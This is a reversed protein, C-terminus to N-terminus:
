HSQREIRRKGGVRCSGGGSCRSEFDLQIVNEKENSALVEAVIRGLAELEYPKAIMACFGHERYSCMAPDTHYGSSVIAKVEPDIAHLRRVAEKGGMGGPITLDSIVVDFRRGEHLANEYAQIASLGDHAEFVEYGLPALACNVLTCISEEDDLILVRARFPAATPAPLLLDAVVPTKDTAPLFVYFTTGQGPRSMVDIVGNHGKIISYATALGLGSGKPKTSFYPDFIRKINEEAIGIGQDQFVIKIDQGAPLGLRQHDTTLTFNACGVRLLGGAPMAQDANITLNSVVQSIQGADVEAALLDDPIDFDAKVSSGRLSFSVTDRLLQAISASQKVPAGGKAFTLLQQALEQARLAAKKASILRDGIENRAGPLYLALSLNGLISTLLNNFDHAIGGAALGLSELKEAKRREEEAHARETIDRFVLVSGNRRAREGIPAANIEILREVGDRSQLLACGNLTATKGANVLRDLDSSRCRRTHRDLLQFIEPLNRGAADAQNWGVLREAIPNLMTVRGQADITIFGDGISRM